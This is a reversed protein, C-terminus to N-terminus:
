LHALLWADLDAIGTFDLLSEGLSELQEINLGRIQEQQALSLLGYRKTLMRLVLGTEGEQRGEQQGEQFVEQYFRTQTVDATKLNLMKLIEKTSLQPFKNVLIAEVLDLRRRLEEETEASNLIAQALPATDQENVVLLKLLSLNPSLNTLPLLDELYLRKVQSTLLSQYPVDSGLDEQRNPLILLGYWPQKVNYQYLYMFIEAFYRGYFKPDRQMQAELFVLPLNLDKAIPTLLGDLEFGKEKVGPASYTFECDKPIEPILETILGPQSLFLRYFLKDTKM